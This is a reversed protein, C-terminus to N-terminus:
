AAMRKPIYRRPEPTEAGEIMTDALLQYANQWAEATEKNWSSGLGIELTWLLAAGAVAYHRKQVGDGRYRRGLELASARLTELQALNAVALGIAVMLKQKQETMGHETLNPRFMLRLSPDLEFLRCFFLEAAQEKHRLMRAFSATVLEIQRPTMTRDKRYTKKPRNLGLAPELYGLPHRAATLGTVIAPVIEM